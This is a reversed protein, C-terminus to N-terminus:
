EPLRLADHGVAAVRGVRSLAYRSAIAAHDARSKPKIPANTRNPPKPATSNVTAEQDDVLV